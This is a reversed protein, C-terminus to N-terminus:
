PQSRQTPRCGIWRRAASALPLFSRERENRSISRIALRSGSQSALHIALARLPQRWGGLRDELRRRGLGLGLLGPQAAHEARQAHGARQRDLEEGLELREQQERRLELQQRGRPRHQQRDAGVRQQPAPAERDAEDRQQEHVLHAVVDLQAPLADPGGPHHEDREQAGGDGRAREAARTPRAPGSRPESPQARSSGSVAPSSKQRASTNVPKKM